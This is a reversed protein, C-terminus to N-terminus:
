NWYTRNIGYVAINGSTDDALKLELLDSKYASLAM